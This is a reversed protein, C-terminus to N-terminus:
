RSVNTGTQKNLM